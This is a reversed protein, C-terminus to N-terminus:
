KMLSELYKLVLMLDKIELRMLRLLKLLKYVQSSKMEKNISLLEPFLTSLMLDLFDALKM